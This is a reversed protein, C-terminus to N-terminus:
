GRGVVWSLFDYEKPNRLRNQSVIIYTIRTIMHENESYFPTIRTKSREMEDNCKTVNTGVLKRRSLNRRRLRNLKCRNYRPM